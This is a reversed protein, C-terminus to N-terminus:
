IPETGPSVPRENITVTGGQITVAGTARLVLGLSTAIEVQNSNLDLNVSLATGPQDTGSSEDLDTIRLGATAARTDVEIRLRDNQWVFNDAEGDESIEHGTPVWTQHFMGPIYNVTGNIDGGDWFVLAKTGVEPVFPGGGRKQGAVFGFPYAWDTEDLRGPIKLKVRYLKEPDVRNVVIGTWPGM